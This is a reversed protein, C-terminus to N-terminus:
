DCDLERRMGTASGAGHVPECHRPFGSSFLAMLLPWSDPIHEPESELAWLRVTCHQPTADPDPSPPIGSPMTFGFSGPSSGEVWHMEEFVWLFGTYPGPESTQVEAEITVGTGAPAATGGAGVKVGRVSTYAWQASVVDFGDQEGM